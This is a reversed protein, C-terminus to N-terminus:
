LTQQRKPLWQESQLVKMLPLLTLLMVTKQSLWVFVPMKTTHLSKLSIDEGQREARDEWNDSKALKALQRNEKFKEFM